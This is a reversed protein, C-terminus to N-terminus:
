DLTLGSSQQPDRDVAAMPLLTMVVAYLHCDVDRTDREELAVARAGTSYDSLFDVRHIASSCKWPGSGPRQYTRFPEFIMSLM